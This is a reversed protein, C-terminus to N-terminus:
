LGTELVLLGKFLEEVGLLFSFLLERRCARYAPAREVRQLSKASFYGCSCSVGLVCEWSASVVRAKPLAFTGEMKVLGRSRKTGQGRLQRGRAEGGSLVCPGLEALVRGLDLYILGLKLIVKRTSSAGIM